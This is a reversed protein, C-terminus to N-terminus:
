LAPEGVDLASHAPLQNKSEPIVSCWIQWVKTLLRHQLKIIKWNGHWEEVRYACWLRSFGISYLINLIHNSRTNAKFRVHKENPQTHVCVACVHVGYPDSQLTMTLTLVALSLYDCLSTYETGGFPQLDVDNDWKRDSNHGLLLTAIDELKANDPQVNILGMRMACKGWKDWVMERSKEVRCGTSIIKPSNSLAPSSITGHVPTWHPRQGRATLGWRESICHPCIRPPCAAYLLVLWM